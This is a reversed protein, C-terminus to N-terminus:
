ILNSPHFYFALSEFLGRKATRDIYYKLVAKQNASNGLNRIESRLFGRKLPTRELIVFAKSKRFKGFKGIERDPFLCNKGIERVKWPVPFKLGRIEENNRLRKM